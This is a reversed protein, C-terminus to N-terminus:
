ILNKKEQMTQLMYNALFMDFAQTGNNDNSYERIAAYYQMRDNYLINLAEYGNKLLELNILLRATRGNGDIFPHIRVFELHAYSAKLIPHLELSHYKKILNEMQPRILYPQAAIFGGVSVLSHRYKGAEKDNINKLIFSHIQCILNESLPEKNEALDKIFDFAKAHNIVEFHEKLSKGGIAIGELVIRTEELSLSNGEIANSNYIFDVKFDDDLSGQFTHTSIFKKLSDIKDLLNKM